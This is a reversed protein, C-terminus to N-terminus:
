GELGLRLSQRGQFLFIKFVTSFPSFDRTVLMKEKESFTKRNYRLFLSLSLDGIEWRKIHLRSTNDTLGMSFNERKNPLPNFIFNELQVCVSNRKLGKGFSVQNKIHRCYLDKSFVAPFPSIARSSCNRM